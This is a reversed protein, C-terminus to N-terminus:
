KFVNIIQDITYKELAETALAYTMKDTIKFYKNDENEKITEIISKVKESCTTKCLDFFKKEKYKIISVVTIFEASQKWEWKNAQERNRELMEQAYEIHM